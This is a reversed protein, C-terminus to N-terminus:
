WKEPINEENGMKLLFYNNLFNIFLFSISLASFISFSYVIEGTNIFSYIGTFLPSFGAIIAITILTVYRIIRMRRQHISLATEKEKLVENRKKILKATTKIRELTEENNSKNLSSFLNVISPYEFDISSLVDILEEGLQLSYRINPPVTELSFLAQELNKGGEIQSAMEELFIDDSTRLKNM